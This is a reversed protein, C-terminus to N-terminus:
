RRRDPDPTVTITALPKPVVTVTATGSLSGLTAVVTNDFTGLAEGAVFVGDGDITGGGAQVSWTPEVGVVNGDADTATAVFQQSASTELTQPDPTVTIAAPVGPAMPRHECAVAFLATLSLIATLAAARRPNPM